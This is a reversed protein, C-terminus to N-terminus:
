KAEFAKLYVVAIKSIFELICGYGVIAFCMIVFKAWLCVAYTHNRFNVIQKHWYYDRQVLLPEKSVITAAPM